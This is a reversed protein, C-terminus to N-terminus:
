GDDLPILPGSMLQGPGFGFRREVSEEELCTEWLTAEQAKSVQETDVAFRVFRKLLGALVAYAFSIAHPM